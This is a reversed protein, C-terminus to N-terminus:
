ESDNQTEPSYYVGAEGCACLFVVRVMHYSYMGDFEYVRSFASLIDGHRRIDNEAPCCILLIEMIYKM